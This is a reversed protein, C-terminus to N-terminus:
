QCARVSRPESLFYFYATSPLSKAQLMAQDPIPNTGLLQRLIGQRHTTVTNNPSICADLTSTAHTALSESQATRLTESAVHFSAYQQLLVQNQKLIDSLSQERNCGQLWHPFNLGLSHRVNQHQQIHHGLHGPGRKTLEAFLFLCLCDDIIHNKVVVYMSKIRSAHESLEVNNANACGQKTSTPLFSSNHDVIKVAQLWRAYAHAPLWGCSIM